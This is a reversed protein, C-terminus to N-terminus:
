AEKDKRKIDDRHITYRKPDAEIALQVNTRSVKKITIVIEQGNIFIRENTRRTIVLAM